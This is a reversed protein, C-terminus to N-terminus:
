KSEVRFADNADVFDRVTIGQYEDSKSGKERWEHASCFSDQLDAPKATM